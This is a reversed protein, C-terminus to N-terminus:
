ASPAVLVQGPRVLDPDAGVVHANTVHWREVAEAVQRDTSGAPLHRSAISWLSDGRVVVVEPAAEPGPVDRTVALAADRQRVADSSAGEAAVTQGAAGSDETEQGVVGAGARAGGSDTTDGTGASEASTSPTAGTAASTAGHSRHPDQSTGADAPVGSPPVSPASVSSPPVSSPPVSTVPAPQGPAADARTSSSGDSGATSGDATASPAGPTTRSTSAASEAASSSVTGGDGAVAGSPRWGLDVAVVGPDDAPAAAHATGGAVLLGAGVTAGVAARAAHRVVAPAARRLLREGTTWSRGAAEAAVCALAVLASLAVWLAVLAGVSVAGLEVWSEVRHTPLADVLHLARFSLVTTAGGLVLVLALLALLGGARRSGANVRDM